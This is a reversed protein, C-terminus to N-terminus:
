LKLALPSKAGVKLEPDIVIQGSLAEDNAFLAVAEFQQEVQLFLVLRRGDGREFRDQRPQFLLM